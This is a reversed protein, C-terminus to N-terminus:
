AIVNNPGRQNITRRRSFPALDIEADLHAATIRM